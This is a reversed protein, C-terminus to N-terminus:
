RGWKLNTNAPVNQIEVILEPNWGVDFITSIWEDPKMTALRVNLTIPDDGDNKILFVRDKDCLTFYGPNIIGMQSIQLSNNEHLRNDLLM